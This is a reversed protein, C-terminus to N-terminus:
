ICTMIQTHSWGPHNTIIDKYLEKHNENLADYQNLEEITM